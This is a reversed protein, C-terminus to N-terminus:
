GRYGSCEYFSFRHVINGGVVKSQTDLLECRTFRALGSVESRGEYNDPVILVGGEGAAPSGYWLDFQDYRDDAVVIRTPRAYWAIRSGLSWNGVVIPVGGHSAALQQAHLAAERWGLLDGLPHRYDDFPLWPKFLLSHLLAIMVLAYGASLWSAVRVWRLAGHQVLLVSVLPLLGTWGLLTWHPLTDELGAGWGMLLLLPLAMALSFRVGAHHRERWGRVLTWVGFIMVPGYTFLQILQSRAFRLLSWHRDPAGHGLQYRFSLWDHHLNWYLVPMILLTALVMALWPGPTRLVRWRREWVLLVLTTIVLTVATYKSLGALGFGAGVGLWHLLRGEQLARYLMLAAFLAFLLLPLEPVLALTVLQFILASNLLAVAVAASWPSSVPFLARTLRFLLASSAVGLVVAWLRLAFESQFFPVVLTQLWGVMPPHDFYSWDPKLGYLAYHAEDVSLDFRGMVLLHLLATFLVIGIALHSPQLTAIRERLSAM